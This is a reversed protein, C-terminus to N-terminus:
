QATANYQRLVQRTGQDITSLVEDAGRGDKVIANIADEYYKIMQDNIGNDHTNSSLYWSKANPADQLYAAAYENDALETALAPQPYLEGFARTASAASYFKRLTDASTLHALFKAAAEKKTSRASMGEAWYTAWSIKDDGLLPLPAVGIDLDPNMVLIEHIRWSPAFIMAVDGRAFAVTSNPLTEDWVRDQKAFNTYFLLADRTYASNPATLDAGNQLMLVALIDSFHDVNSTTGLAIGARTISNGSRVTLKNALIRLEAWTQPPQENVSTLVEKNYLLALGEYMAPIGVIQGNSQLQESAIPYYKQRFDATSIVSSPIPALDEKLMPVWTAHYRFLDPGNGSAIATELRQRYDKHSQNVYNVTIGPNNTEFDAIVERMVADPEWLGWYEITTRQVPAGQGTGGPGGAPDQTVSNNSGGGLFRMAAFAALALVLIGGIVFPLYKMLPSKAKALKPQTKSNPDGAPEPPADKKPPPPPSTPPQNPLGAQARIDGQRSSAPAAPQEPTQNRDEPLNTSTMSSLASLSTPPLPTKLQSQQRMASPPPTETQSGTQSGAQGAAPPTGPSPAPPTTPQASPTTAPPMAPPTVVGPAPAAPSATAPTITSPTSPVGPAVAGPAPAAGPAVAGPAGPPTPPTPKPLQNDNM